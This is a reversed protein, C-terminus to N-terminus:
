FAMGPFTCGWAHIQKAALVAMEIHTHLWRKVAGQEVVVEATHLQKIMYLGKLFTLISIQIDRHPVLCKKHAVTSM